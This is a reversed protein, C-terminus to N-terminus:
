TNTNQSFMDNYLTQINTRIYKKSDPNYKMIYKSKPYYQYGTPLIDIYNKFNQQFEEFSPVEINQQKIQQPNEQNNIFNNNNNNYGRRIDNFKGPIARLDKMQITNQNNRQNLLQTNIHNLMSKVDTLIADLTPGHKCVNQVIENIVNKYQSNGNSDKKKASKESINKSNFYEIATKTVYKNYLISNLKLVSLTKKYIKRADGFINLQDLAVDYMIKTVKSLFINSMSPARTTYNIEALKGIPILAGDPDNPNQQLNQNMFYAKSLEGPAIEGTAMKITREIPNGYSDVYEQYIKRLNNKSNKLHYGNIYRIDNNGDKILVEPIEDQNIDEVAVQWHKKPNKIGLNKKFTWYDAGPKTILSKNLVIDSNNNLVIQALDDMGPSFGVVDKDSPLIQYAPTQYTGLGISNYPNWNEALQPTTFKAQIAKNRDYM